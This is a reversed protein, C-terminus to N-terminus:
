VKKEKESSDKSGAANAATTGTNQTFMQAMDTGVKTFMQALTNGHSMARSVGEQLAHQSVNVREATPSSVLAKIVGGLEDFSEQMYRSQLQSITQFAEAAMKSATTIAGMNKQYSEMLAEPSVTFKNKDTM